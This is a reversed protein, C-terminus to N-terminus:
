CSDCVSTRSGHIFRGSVSSVSEGEGIKEASILFSQNRQSLLLTKSSAVDECNDSFMSGLTVIFDQYFLIHKMEFDSASRFAKWAIILHTCQKRCLDNTLCLIRM